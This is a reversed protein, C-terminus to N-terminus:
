KKEGTGLYVILDCLKKNSMNPLRVDPNILWQYFEALTDEYKEPVTIYDTDEKCLGEGGYLKVLRSTRVILVKNAARIEVSRVGVVYPDGPVFDLHYHHVSDM